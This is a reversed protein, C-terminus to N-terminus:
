QSNGELSLRLKKPLKAYVIEYSHDILEFIFEDPLSNDMFVSNWHKKNQHWAPQVAAHSERLQMAREPECKLNIFYFAPASAGQYTFESTMTMAFMKGMVKFWASIDGHPYEETVGKKALCYAKFIELTMLVM